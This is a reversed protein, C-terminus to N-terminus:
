LGGAPGNMSGAPKKSRRKSKSKAQGPSNGTNANINKNLANVLATMNNELAGLRSSLTAITADDDSLDEQFQTQNTASKDKPQKTRKKSRQKNTKSKDPTVHAQQNGSPTVYTLQGYTNLSEDDEPAYVFLNNDRQSTQQQDSNSETPLGSVVAENNPNQLWDYSNEIEQIMNEYEEEEQSVACNRKVDWKSTRAREAAAPTMYKRIVYAGYHHYLYSGLDAVRSIAEDRYKEIFTFVTGDGNWADDLTWFLPHGDTTRM